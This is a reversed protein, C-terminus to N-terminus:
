KEYYIYKLLAEKQNEPIKNLGSILWGTNKGSRNFESLEFYWNEVQFFHFKVNLITEFVLGGKKVEYLFLTKYDPRYEKEVYYEVNKKDSFVKMLNMFDLEHSMPHIFKNTVSDTFFLEAFPKFYVKNIVWKMGHNERELELFLTGTEQKGQYRFRASVEAFWKGGYFDLYVPSSRNVVDGIFEKKLDSSIMQNEQDFLMKLYSNRTEPDRYYEHGEYLRDGKLDEEANFRRFFQNIQKTQAYFYSEDGLYNSVSQAKLGYSTLLAIVALLSNKM